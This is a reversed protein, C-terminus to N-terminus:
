ATIDLGARFWRARSQQQDSGPGDRFERQPDGDQRGAGGSHGQGFSGAGAAMGDARAAPPEIQGPAAV